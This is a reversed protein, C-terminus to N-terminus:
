REGYAHVTFKQYIGLVNFLEYDAHHVVKLGGQRAAEEIDCRDWSFTLAGVIPILLYQTSASGVATKIETKEVDTTLPAKYQSFIVGMPPRIPTQHIMRGCGGLLVVAPLLLLAILTKM